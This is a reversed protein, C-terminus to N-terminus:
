QVEDRMYNQIEYSPTLDNKKCYIQYKKWFKRRISLVVPIKEEDKNNVM